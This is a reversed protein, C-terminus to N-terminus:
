PRTSLLAALRADIAEAEAALLGERQELLLDELALAAEGVAAFGFTGAAGALGHAINEIRAFRQQRALPPIRWLGDALRQLTDRDSALRAPFTGDPDLLDLDARDPEPM